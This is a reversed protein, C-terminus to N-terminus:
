SHEVTNPSVLCHHSNCLAASLLPPRPVADGVRYVSESEHIFPGPVSLSEPNPSPFNRPPHYIHIPATHTNKHTNYTHTPYTHTIHIYPHTNHTDHYICHIPQPIHTYKHQILPKQTQPIHSTHVCEYVCVFGCFAGVVVYM